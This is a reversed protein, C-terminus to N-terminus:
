DEMAYDIVVRGDIKGHRMEDFVANIDGLPRTHFTPKIKGAAYFELAEVMDQRTGVISGRITLGKLVIDFIPAPFDGPPLGNFVITGGRRTMAIAQGFAQPHVATVLVGHAGGIKEQIEVSPDAVNANVTIEAGHREALKLKDDAVDVAVVRMGMAVAYQVAIHGLGGIGSIVVWQGPRVETQKLGKYVTVGACLIPGVELPDSGEPIVPAYRTDVLMYEGFSGDTSYGGNLQEECLTEWGTRCYQCHGCATWLWANGVMDGVKVNDVDPGVEEVIGVGEHGPIFPPTPKVPWDGEMAHLDTHCVGSAILKVLAQHQGPTPREVEKVETENGFRTVVAAKMATM